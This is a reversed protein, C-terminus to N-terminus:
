KVVYGHRPGGKLTIRALEIPGTAAIGPASFWEIGDESYWGYECECVYHTGNWHATYDVLKM